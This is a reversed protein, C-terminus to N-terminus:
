RRFIRPSPRASSSSSTDWEQRGRKPEAPLNLSFGAGAPAFTSPGTPAPADPSSTSGPSSLPEEQGVLNCVEVLPHFARPGAQV